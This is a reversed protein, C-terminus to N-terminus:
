PFSMYDITDLYLTMIDIFLNEYSAMVRRNNRMFEETSHLLFLTSPASDSSDPLVYLTQDMGVVCAKHSM